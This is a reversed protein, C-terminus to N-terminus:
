TQAYSTSNQDLVLDVVDHLDCYNLTCHGGLLDLLSPECCKPRHRRALHINANRLFVLFSSVTLEFTSHSTPSKLRVTVFTGPWFVMTVVALTKMSSSDRKSEVALTRSDRAIGISLSQDRQAIMNFLASM